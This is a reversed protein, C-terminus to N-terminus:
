FSFCTPLWSKETESALQEYFGYKVNKEFDRSESCHLEFNQCFHFRCSIVFVTTYFIHVNTNRFVTQFKNSFESKEQKQSLYKSRIQKIKFITKGQL